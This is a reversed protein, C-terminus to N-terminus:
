LRHITILSNTATNSPTAGARSDTAARRREWGSFLDFGFWFTRTANCFTASHLELAFFGSQVTKDVLEFRFSLIRFLIRSDSFFILKAWFVKLICNQLFFIAKLLLKVWTQNECQLIKFYSNTNGRSTRFFFDGFSLDWLRKSLGYM